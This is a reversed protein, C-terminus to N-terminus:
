TPKAHLEPKQEPPANACLAGSLKDAISGHKVNPSFAGIANLVDATTISSPTATMGSGSVESAADKSVALQLAVPTSFSPRPVAVVLLTLGARWRTQSSKRCGFENSGSNAAWLLQVVM